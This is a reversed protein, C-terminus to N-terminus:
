ADTNDGLSILNNAPAYGPFKSETSCKRWWEALQTLEDQVGKLETAELTHVSIAYPPLKEVAVFHFDDVPLGLARAARWYWAAQVWLNGYERRSKRVIWSFDVPHASQTSKLDAMWTDGVMDIRAKCPGHSEEWVLVEEHVSKAILPGALPHSRVEDAIKQMAHFDSEVVGEKGPNREALEDRSLVDQKKRGDFKRHTYYRDRWQFPELTLCHLAAGFQMADTTERQTVVHAPTSMYLARLTSANTADIAAYAEFSMAPYRGPKVEITENM